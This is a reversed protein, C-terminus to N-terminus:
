SSPRFPVSAPSCPYIHPHCTLLIHERPLRVSGRTHLPPTPAGPAARLGKAAGRGPACECGGVCVTAEWSTAAERPWSLGGRERERAQVQPALASTPGSARAKVPRRQRGAPSCSGTGRAQSHGWSVRQALSLSRTPHPQPACLLPAPLISEPSETRWTKPGPPSSSSTGLLAASAVSELHPPHAPPTDASFPGHAGSQRCARHTDPPERGPRTGVGQHWPPHAWQVGAPAPLTLAPWTGRRLDRRGPPMPCPHGRPVTLSQAPRAPATPRSSLWVDEGTEGRSGPCAGGELQNEGGPPLQGLPM